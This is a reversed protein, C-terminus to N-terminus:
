KGSDKLLAAMLPVIDHLLADGVVLSNCLQDRL